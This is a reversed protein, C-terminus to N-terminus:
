PLTDVNVIIYYPRTTRLFTLMPPRVGPYTSPLQIRETVLEFDMTYATTAKLGLPDNPNPFNAHATPNPFNAHAATNPTLLWSALPPAPIRLAVRQVLCRRDVTQRMMECLSTAYVADLRTTKAIHAPQGAVRMTNNAMSHTVRTKPTPTTTPRLSRGTVSCTVSAVPAWGAFSALTTRTRNRTQGGSKAPKSPLAGSRPTPKLWCATATRVVRCKRQAVPAAFPRAASLPLPATGLARSQNQTVTTLKKRYELWLNVTKQKKRKLM